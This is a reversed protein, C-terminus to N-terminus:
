EFDGLNYFKSKGGLHSIYSPVLSPNIQGFPKKVEPDTTDKNYRYSETMFWLWREPYQPNIHNGWGDTIVFVKHPYTTKKRCLDELIDFRTGGTKLKVNKKHFDIPYVSTTFGWVEVDFYEPPFSLAAQIFRPAYEYCSGSTDLFLLVPIKHIDTSERDEGPLMIEDEKVWTLDQMWSMTRKDGFWNDESRAFEDVTKKIWQKIITEWRPKPVFRPRPVTFDQGLGYGAKQVLDRLEELIVEKEDQHIDMEQIQESLAQAVEGPNLGPEEPNEIEHADLTAMSDDEDGADGKGGSSQESDGDEDSPSGVSVTFRKGQQGFKLTSDGYLLDHFLEFNANEILRELEESDTEPRDADIDFSRYNSLVKAIQEPKMKEKIFDYDILIDKLIPMKSKDFGYCQYLQENVAVDAAVNYRFMDQPTRDEGLMNEIRRPHGLIVHMAEHTMVFAKETQNLSSWFKPNIRWTIQKTQPHMAVAATEIKDDWTPDGIQAVAYFLSHYSRLEKLPLDPATFKKM